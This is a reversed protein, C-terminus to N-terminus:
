RATEPEFTWVAAHPVPLPQSYLLIAPMACNKLNFGVEIPPLAAANICQATKVVKQLVKQEVATSSDYCVTICSNLISEVAVM